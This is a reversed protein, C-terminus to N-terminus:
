HLEWPARGRLGGLLFRKARCSNLDARELTRERGKLLLHEVATTTLDEGETRDNWLGTGVQYLVILYVNAVLMMLAVVAIVVILFWDM